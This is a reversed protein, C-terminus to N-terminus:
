EGSYNKQYEAWETTKYAETSFFTAVKMFEDAPRFGPVAQLLKLEKSMFVVTPYSLKNQLLAAALENYGRRGAAVYKFENGMFTVTERSEADFKVAYFDNNLLKSVRPDAFTKRDMVKCWGCWDTYTDIFVPRPEKKVLAEVETIKYWKVAEGQQTGAEKPSYFTFATLALVVVLAAGALAINKM